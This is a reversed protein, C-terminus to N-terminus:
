TMITLGPVAGAGNFELLRLLAPSCGVLAGAVAPAAQALIRAAPRDAFRLGAVDVTV